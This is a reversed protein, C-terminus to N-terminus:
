SRVSSFPFTVAGSVVVISTVLVPAPVKVNGIGPNSGAAIRSSRGPEDLGAMACYRSLPTRATRARPTLCLPPRWNDHCERSRRGPIGRASAAANRSWCRRDTCRWARVPCSLVRVLPRVPSDPRTRSFLSRAGTITRSSPSCDTASIPPLRHPSVMIRHPRRRPFSSRLERARRQSKRPSPTSLLLQLRRLCTRPRLGLRRLIRQRFQMRSRRPRLRLRRGPRTWGANSTPRLRLSRGKTSARRARRLWGRTRKTSHARPLSSFRRASPDISLRKARNGSSHHTDPDKSTVLKQSAFRAFAAEAERHRNTNLYVVGLYYDPFFRIYTDGYTYARASPKQGTTQAQTLLKEAAAWDRREVARVAERYADDLPDAGRGTDDPLNATDSM